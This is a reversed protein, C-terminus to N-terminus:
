DRTYSAPDDPDAGLEGVSGGCAECRAGLSLLVDAKREENVLYVRIQANGCECDWRLVVPLRPLRLPDSEGITV